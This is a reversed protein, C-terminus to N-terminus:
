RNNITILLVSIFVQLVLDSSEKEKQKKKKENRQLILERSKGIIFALMDIDVTKNVVFSFCHM